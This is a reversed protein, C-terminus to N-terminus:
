PHVTFPAALFTDFGGLWVALTLPIAAVMLALSAATLLPAGVMSVSLQPMAKNIIGLAVNYVVSGIVFPAALSFALSFAGVIQLLGWDAMDAPSPFRGAPLIGYSLILLSAAKVHLGSLVALALSAMTLLNGIAPQPEPTAGGFLQSLSTVQAIIAAAMQLAIIFMRMGIGIALGVLVEVAAPKLIGQVQELDSFVAPGVVATFALALVLRVRQPVAQEGFAPMVSLAAGVRLFVLTATLLWEQGLGTLETLQVILDNM